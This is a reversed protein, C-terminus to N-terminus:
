QRLDNEQYWALTAHVAQALPTTQFPGFATEFAAPNVVFPAAFQYWIDPTERAEPIFLGAVRMMLKSTVSFRVPRGTEEQILAVFERASVEKAAPLVWAKGDAESREGLVVLARAVDPLYSFTHPLDANAPWRVPKGAVAAAVMMGAVSGTGGPGFYDSARGITVRLGDGESAALLSDALGKRVRGKRSSPEQPCEEGIPGTVPGYMYLNDAFVLKAGAGTVATVISQNLAPFEEAWRDYRPQAAHYVVAAGACARAAGEATTLDAACSEVGDPVRARGDRSVARVRLGRGALEEVLANGIGGAAGLVVSITM